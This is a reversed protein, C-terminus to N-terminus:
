GHTPDNNKKLVLGSFIRTGKDSATFTYKAPLKATRDSSKFHMTGTYGAAVNGYADYAAATFRNAMGATGTPALGTVKLSQVVAPQVVISSETGTSSSTVNSFVVDVWYNSSQYSSTPFGGSAGYLYVGNGGAASNSLATLPGNTIGSSAFYNNDDAYHGLPAFYSAVYTTGATIAVPTTFNVQQWGSATENTFTASALLTGTSSWLHGVHTGTNGSGKYFRVGTITGAVSSDFKVGVEVAHSDNQSPNAPTANGFITDGTISAASVVINDSTASALTGSTFKLSITEATNDALNTFTAVRGSM